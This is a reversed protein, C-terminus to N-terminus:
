WYEPEESERVLAPPDESCRWLGKAVDILQLKLAGALKDSILVEREHEAVAVHVGEVKVCVGVLHVDVGAPIFLMRYFGIPTEYTLARAHPPALPIGLYEALRRPLLIEPEAVEYGSNVLASTDVERSTLRARLKLRVRVGM